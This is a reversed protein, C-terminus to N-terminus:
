EEAVPNRKNRVREFANRGQAAECTGEYIEKLVCSIKQYDHYNEVYERGKVGLMYRLDADLILQELATELSDIDASVIPLEEPLRLKMDDSIYTIVPKGLAMSEIALVGYTGIFLQDIVIDAQAYIERAEKPQKGEVLVLEINEYKNKLRDITAIVYDTGKLHRNSPAHVIKITERNGKPYNPTFLSLDMRLPVVNVPAHEQPLYPILEDDHLIIGTAMKCIKKNRMVAKKSLSDEEEPVFKSTESFKVYDRLESGHFECFLKKKFLPYIWLDYNYLITKGIHFHFVNFKFLAYVFFLFVKALYYPYLLIKERNLGLIYDPEIVARKEPKRWVSKAYVGQEALGKVAYEGQGIMSSVGHLVKLQEKARLKFDKNSGNM